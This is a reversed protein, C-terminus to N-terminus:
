VSGCVCGVREGPCVPREENNGATVPYGTEVDVCWCYDRFCQVPSFFGDGDCDPIFISTDRRASLLRRLASCRPRVPDGLTCKSAGDCSTPCCLEGPGECDTNAECSAEECGVLRDTVAPCELPADRIFQTNPPLDFCGQEDSYDRCDTYNDCVYHSPICEQTGCLFGNECDAPSSTPTTLPHPKVPSKVVYNSGVSEM